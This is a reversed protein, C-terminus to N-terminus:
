VAKSESQRNTDAEEIRGQKGSKHRLYYLKSKRVKGHRKIAIDQVTPSHIPFTKEVGVGFSIRRVTFSTQIGVGKKKIVTM